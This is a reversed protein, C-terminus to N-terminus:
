AAQHLSRLLVHGAAGSPQVDQSAEGRRDILGVLFSREKSVFRLESKEEVKCVSNSTFHFYKYLLNGLNESEL